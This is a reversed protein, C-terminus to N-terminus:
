ASSRLALTNFHRPFLPRTRRGTDQRLPRIEETEAIDGPQGARGDHTAGVLAAERQESLTGRFSGTGAIYGPSILNATLGRPGVQASLLGATWAAAAVAKGLGSGGETVPVIRNVM